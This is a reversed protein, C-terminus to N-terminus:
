PCPSERRGTATIYMGIHIQEMRRLGTKPQPSRGFNKQGSAFPLITRHSQGTRLEQLLPFQCNRPRFLVDAFLSEHRFIDATAQAFSTDPESQFPRIRSRGSFQGMQFGINTKTERRDFGQPVDQLSQVRRRGYAPQRLFLSEAEDQRM